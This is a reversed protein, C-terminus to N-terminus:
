GVVHEAVREEQANRAVIIVLEEEGDNVVAHPADPPVYICDGPEVVLTQDMRPGVLFGGRGSVVYLASECNTHTHASSRLGPGVRSVGMFIGESGVTEASIAAARTMEGSAAGARLQDRKVLRIEAPTPPASARVVCFENGEPDALTVFPDQPDASRWLFTAGLSQIRAAEAEEDETAFDLHVRNKVVKGEPVRQFGIRPAHGAPDGLSVWDADKWSPDDFPPEAERPQFGTVASWFAALRGVDACDIVVNMVQLQTV